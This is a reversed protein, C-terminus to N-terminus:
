SAVGRADRAQEVYHVVDGGAVVGLFEDGGGLGEFVGGDKLIAALRDFAGVDFEDVDGDDGRIAVDEDRFESEGDMWAVMEEDDAWIAAAFAAEETDEAAEPRDVTAGHVFGRVAGDEVDRLPRVEGATSEALLNDVRVAEALHTGLINGVGVEQLPEFRDIYRVDDVPGTAPVGFVFPAVDEGDAELLADGHSSEEVM